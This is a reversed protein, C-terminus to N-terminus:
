CYASAAPRCNGEPRGAVGRRRWRIPARPGLSLCVLCRFGLHSYVNREEHIALDNWFSM